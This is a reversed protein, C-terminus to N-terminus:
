PIRPDEGSHAKRIAERLKPDLKAGDLVVKEAEVEKVSSMPVTFDGANEIYVVINDKHVQRVAGFAHGGDHLFVDFGEQIKEHWM